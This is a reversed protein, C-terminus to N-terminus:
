LALVEDPCAKHRQADLLKRLRVREASTMHDVFRALAVPQDGGDRLIANMRNATYEARGLVPAYAWARGQRERTLLGKDFLRTLVTMVTTYALEPEGPLRAGVEAPTLRRAADWLVSLIEAELQGMARRPRSAHERSM